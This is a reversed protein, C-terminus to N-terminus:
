WRGDVEQRLRRQTRLGPDTTGVVYARGAADVAIGEGSDHRDERLYTSYVLNSGSPALKTVFTERFDADSDYSGPHHSLRETETLGTVYASGAADIALDFLFEVGTGGLLTSYILASGSANLKAVYPTSARRQADHRVRGPNDPLVRRRGGESM